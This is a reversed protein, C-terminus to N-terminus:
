LPLSRLKLGRPNLPETLIGSIVIQKLFYNKGAYVIQIFLIFLCIRLNLSQKIISWFANSRLYFFLIGRVRTLGPHFPEGHLSPLARKM